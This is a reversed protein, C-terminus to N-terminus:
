ASVEDAWVKMSVLELGGYSTVMAVDLADRGRGILVRGVRPQNNRPDFTWWRDGLFVEMWACFDMPHDPPPVGIDPLYGFTYRAPINLARCFTLALQAYDRCVGRGSLYVDRATSVPTSTGYGFSVHDHVWDCIAAVRGWGPETGGFLEWAVDGMADSPCLRSPLTFQLTDDPLQSPPIERAASVVPDPEGALDVVATYRLTTEGEPLNVRRCLNGFSDIFRSTAAPPRNDWGDDLLAFHGDPRPEVQM